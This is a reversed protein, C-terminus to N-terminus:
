GIVNSLSPHGTDLSSLVLGGALGTSLSLDSACLPLSEAGDLGVPVSISALGKRCKEEEVLRDIESKLEECEAMLRILEAGRPANTGDLWNRTTRPSAEVARALIEPGHKLRGYITRLVTTVTQSYLAATTSMKQFDRDINARNKCM